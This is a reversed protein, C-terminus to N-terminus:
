TARDYTTLSMAFRVQDGRLYRTLNDLVIEGCSGYRDRTPGAIHPSLLADPVGWVPSRSTLPEEATVDLALRIRGSRAASVLAGEDVLGGRGVNVFVAGHPLSDIVASNVSGASNATLAECEFLVDSTEFLEQLTARSTLKAERIVEVPVGASFISIPVGFPQLLAVLARAVSGFGHIGVRRGFLTRTGLEQIQRDSPARAFFPRWAPLNRLAGLALLLAHEAVQNSVSDGWNSILGGREVYRRPVLQRVSGAVHCVYRLPCDAETLWSEALPPTSWGTVLVEPRLRRLTQEWVGPQLDEADIWRSAALLDSAHITGNFFMERERATLAFCIRTAAQQRASDTAETVQRAASSM